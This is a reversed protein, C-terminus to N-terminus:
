FGEFTASGVGERNGNGWRDREEGFGSEREGLDRM